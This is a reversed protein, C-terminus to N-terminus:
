AAGPVIPPTGYTPPYFGPAITEQLNASRPSVGEPAFYLTQIDQPLEAWLAEQAEQLRQQVEAPALKEGEARLYAAIRTESWRFTQGMILILRLLPDMRDLAQNVYCWLLPPAATISYSIAEVPPLTAQNICQATVQILWSQLTPKAGDPSEPSRLDVGGLEYYLHRWTLAFLYDGQVPSRVSHRVLTYVVPAYRCFLAGFFKGQDPYRQFLTLLEQDSRQSLSEILPHHAEPFRPIKM